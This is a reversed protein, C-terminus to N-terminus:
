ELIFSVPSYKHLLFKLQHDSVPIEKGNIVGRLNVPTAKVYKAGPPFTVTLYGTRGNQEWLRLLTGNGDPNPEYTVLNVGKRSLEFGPSTAPLSGGSGSAVASIVPYNAEMAPVTLSSPNLNQIAWVRLRSTITGKIWYPFNITWLNNFMSVYGVPLDPIYDPDITYIGKSGFSMIRHDLPAIGIGFGNSDAILAGSNVYGYTRNCGRAYNKAPDVISGPRGIRFQPNEANVPLYFGGNEPWYDPKKDDLRITIEFWPSHHPLMITTTVESAIIGDPPASLEIKQGTNEKNVIMRTYSPVGETYPINAPIDARINWGSGFGYIADIHECGIDYAKTQDRDFRQYLYQGFTYKAKKDVLERGTKKDTISIIGGKKRDVTIKLFPNELVTRDTQETELTVTKLVESLKWTKYGSPPINLALFKKGYPGPLGVIADRPWPLPNFVVIKEGDINVNESLQKMEQNLLMTTISDSKEIYAAHDNWTKQLWKCSTDTQITKEFNTDAYANKGELNRSGGWTHEGYMLSREHANFLEQRIDPRKMGLTHLLADLSGVAVIESRTKHAVNEMAPMTGMGHIWSDPMDAQVVPIKAGGKEEAFIAEAFDEMSGPTIKVKPLNRNTESLLEQVQHQSPPGQNDSTMIMALWHKYPWDKPPYLGKGQEEDSGYGQNHMTLLLSGDPGKWKYLLPLDPKENCSNVGIHMFDIGANKLLTPLIWSHSPVDTMKGARSMPIRLMGAVKKNISLGEVLDNLELSETELTVPLAHVVLGGDKVAKVIRARRVADQGPWLIQYMVWSPITWAFHQEPPLKQSKEIINLAKDIMTTRYTNVIEPAPHTFGIDFHTKFSLIIEDLEAGAMVADGAKKFTEPTHVDLEAYWTGTWAPTQGPKLTRKVDWVLWRFNGISQGQSDKILSAYQGDWHEGTKDPRTDVDAIKVWAKASLTYPDPHEASSGYLTYVQPARAGNVGDNLIERGAGSITQQGRSGEYAAQWSYSVVAFVPQIKGLDMVIKGNDTNFNSFAFFDRTQKGEWPLVGNHLGDPSLCSMEGKNGALSIRSHHAIDSRSPRPITPFKWSGNGREFVVKTQAFLNIPQLPALLFLSLIIRWSRNM